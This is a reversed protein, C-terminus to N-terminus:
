RLAQATHERPDFPGLDLRCLLAGLQVSQPPELAWRGSLLQERAAGVLLRLLAEQEVELERSKPFFVSRRLQLCPEDLLPSSLWLALAESAVPPLRLAGQLRRLLEAATPGPPPELALPVACGDPLFLLAPPANAGPAGSAGEGEGEM